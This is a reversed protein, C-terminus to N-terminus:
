INPHSPFIVIKNLILDFLKPVMDKSTEHEKNAAKSPVNTRPFEKPKFITGDSKAIFKSSSLIRHSDTKM